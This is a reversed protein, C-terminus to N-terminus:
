ITFFKQLLTTQTSSPIELISPFLKYTLRRIRQPFTMPVPDGADGYTRAMAGYLSVDRINLEYFRRVSSEGILGASYLSHINGRHTNLKLLPVSLGLAKNIKVLSQEYYESVGVLGNEPLRDLWRSQLNIQGKRQFFCEFPQSFGKHRQLHLFESYCRQLPERIFSLITAGPFAELYRALPFHGCLAKCENGMTEQAVRRPSFEGQKYLKRISEDTEPAEPGYDFILAKRGFVNLMGQRFSTGATKPIHVFIIVAMGIFFISDIPARDVAIEYHVTPFGM